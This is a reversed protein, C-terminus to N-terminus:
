CQWQRCISIGINEWHHRSTPKSIDRMVSLLYKLFESCCRRKSYTQHVHETLSYLLGSLLQIQVSSFKTYASCPLVQLMFFWSNTSLQYYYYTEIYLFQFLFWFTPWNCNLSSKFIIPDLLSSFFFFLTSVLLLQHSLTEQQWQPTSPQTSIYLLVCTGRV